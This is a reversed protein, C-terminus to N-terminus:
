AGFITTPSSLLALRGDNPVIRFRHPAEKVAAQDVNALEPWTAALANRSSRVVVL